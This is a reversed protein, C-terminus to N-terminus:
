NNVSELVEVAYATGLVEICESLTKEVRHMKLNQSFSQFSTFNHETVETTDKAVVGFSGKLFTVKFVMSDLYAIGTNLQLLDMTFVARKNSDTIDTSYALKSSSETISNEVWFAVGQKTIYDPNVMKHGDWAQIKITKM